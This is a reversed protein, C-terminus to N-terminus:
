DSPQLEMQLSNSLGIPVFKSTVYAYYSSFSLLGGFSSVFVLVQLTMNHVITLQFCCCSIANKNM